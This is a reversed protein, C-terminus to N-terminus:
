TWVRRASLAVVPCNLGGRACLLALRHLDWLREGAGDLVLCEGSDAVVYPALQDWLKLDFDTLALTINSCWTRSQFCVLTSTSSLFSGPPSLRLTAPSSKKRVLVAPEPLM